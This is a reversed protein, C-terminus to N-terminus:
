PAPATEAVQIGRRGVLRTVPMQLPAVASDCSAMYTYNEEQQEIQMQSCPNKFHVRNRCRRGQVIPALM